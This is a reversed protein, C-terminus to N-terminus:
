GKTAEIKELVSYYQDLFKMDFTNDNRNLVIYHIPKDFVYGIGHIDEDKAKQFVEELSLLPTSTM